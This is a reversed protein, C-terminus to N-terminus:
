PYAPFQLKTKITYKQNQKMKGSQVTRIKNNYLNEQHQGLSIKKQLERYRLEIKKRAFYVQTAQFVVSILKPVVHISKQPVGLKFRKKRVIWSSSSVDM